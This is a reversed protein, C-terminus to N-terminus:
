KKIRETSAELVVDLNPPGSFYAIAAYRAAKNKATVSANGIGSMTNISGDLELENCKADFAFLDVDYDNFTGLTIVAGGTPDPENLTSPPGSVFFHTYDGKLDIFKYFVGDGPGGEPCTQRVPNENATTIWHGAFESSVIPAPAAITAEYKKVEAAPSPAATGVALLGVATLGLALNRIRM